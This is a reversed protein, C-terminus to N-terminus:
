NWIQLNGRESDSALQQQQEYSNMNQPINASKLM